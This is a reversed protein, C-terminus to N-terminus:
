SKLLLLAANGLAEMALEVHQAVAAATKANDNVQLQGNVVLVLM